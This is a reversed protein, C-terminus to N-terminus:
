NWDYDFGIRFQRSLGPRPGIPHRSVIYEEDFLNHLNASIRARENIAYRASLDVIGYDDTKGFNYDLHGDPDTPGDANSATSYTEDIWYADLYLGLRDFELGTRLSVVHGPIYPVDNGDEGGSFLSEHDESHADGDLEADTLTVALEWPNRFSWGQGAGPDFRLQIELGQSNVDGANKDTDAGGSGLNDVVILDQFDTRFLTLSGQFRQSPTWHTGLEFATSTEEEFGSRAHASPSPLFVGRHVGGFLSLEDSVQYRIGLGPSTVSLTERYHDLGDIGGSRPALQGSGDSRYRKSVQQIREFRLGPEITLAGLTITDKVFVALSESQQLRCAGSCEGSDVRDTITGSADQLFAENNQNREIEDEMWRVGLQFGHSAGGIERLWTLDAQVGTSYYERRNNRYDLKGAAEGKWVALVDPNALGRSGTSGDGRQKFWNRKFRNYFATATVELDDRLDASWRLYSRMHRTGINDAFSAAYRRYPDADFDEDTLGLYTEDADLQTFGVKAEFRQDLPGDPIFYAKLMHEDRKFGTDGGRLDIDKYGDTSRRYVEALLGLTGAGTEWANGAYGHLRIDADSGYSASLYASPREPVPTSVYNIVGGTTHPGYAIQSTGKLVELASMRAVNPSYYAAPASYPAPATPIGDEMLTLKSTRQSDVGRLSINPFLGYGDEERLSVGPGGRLARNIDDYGRLRYEDADIYHGAGTLSREADRSGIVVIREPVRLEEATEQAQAAPAFLLAALGLCTCVSFRRKPAAIM